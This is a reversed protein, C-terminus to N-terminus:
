SVFVCEGKDRLDELVSRVQYDMFAWRELIPQHRDKGNWHGCLLSGYIGPESKAAAEIEEITMEEGYIGLMPADTLGGTDAPSVWKLESNCILPELFEILAEDSGISEPSHGSLSRDGPWERLEKQEEPTVKITLRKRDESIEHKM